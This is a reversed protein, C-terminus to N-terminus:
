FWLIMENKNYKFNNVTILLFRPIKLTTKVGDKTNVIAKYYKLKKPSFKESKKSKRSIKM